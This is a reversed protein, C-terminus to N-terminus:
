QTTLMIQWNNIYLLDRTVQFEDVSDAFKIHAMFLARQRGFRHRINVSEAYTFAYKVKGALVLLFSAISNESCKFIGVSQFSQGYRTAFVAVHCIVAGNGRVLRQKGTRYVM